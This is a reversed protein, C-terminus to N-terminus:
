PTRQEERFRRGAEGLECAYEAMNILCQLRESQTRQLQGRLLTRDVDKLYAEIVPDPYLLPIDEPRQPPMRALKVCRPPPQVAENKRQCSSARSKM